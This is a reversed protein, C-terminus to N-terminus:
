ATLQQREQEEIAGEDLGQDFHSPAIGRAPQATMGSEPAAVRRTVQRNPPKVALADSLFV